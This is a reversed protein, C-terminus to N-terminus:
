TAGPERLQRLIGSIFWGALAALILFGAIPGIVQGPPFSEGASIQSITQATILPALMAELTLLPVALLYGLAIQRLLLVGAVITAPVIIGVDLAFTLETTYSDLRDTVTGNAQAVLLPLGWVALTVLGSIMLFVAPGRRPLDTTVAAALRDRDVSAIALVFAFLSASFLAVYGPFLDNYAVAGLAASGYVYLFFLLMGAHLLEARVSGRRYYITSAILLPVGLLLVVADTGRAGGGAFVTDFAYLGHGLLQVPEGRVTTFPRSPGSGFWLLGAGAVAAALGAVLWSLRVVARRPRVPTPVRTATTSM